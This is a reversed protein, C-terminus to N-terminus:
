QNDQSGTLLYVCIININRKRSEHIVLGSNIKQEVVSIVPTYIERVQLLEKFIARYIYMTYIYSVNDYIVNTYFYKIYNLKIRNHIWYNDSDLTNKLVKYSRTYILLWKWLWLFPRIPCTDLTSFETHIWPTVFFTNFIQEKYQKLKENNTRTTRTRKEDM